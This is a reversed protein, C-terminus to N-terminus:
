MIFSRRGCPRVFPDPLALPPLRLSGMRRPPFSRHDFLHAGDCGRGLAVVVSRKLFPDIMLQALGDYGSAKKGASAHRQATDGLRQVRAGHRHTVGEPPQNRFPSEGSDALAADGDRPHRLIFQVLEATDTDSELGQRRFSGQRVDIASTQLSQFPDVRLEIAGQFSTVDVGQQDLIVLKV